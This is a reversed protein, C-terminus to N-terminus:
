ERLATLFQSMFLAVGTVQQQLPATVSWTETEERPFIFKGIVVANASRIRVWMTGTAQDYVAYAEDGLHPLDVFDLAAGGEYTKRDTSFGYATKGANDAGRAIDYSVQLMPLYSIGSSSVSVGDYACTMAFHDETTVSGATVQEGRARLHYPPNQAVPCTTDVAHWVVPDAQPKEDARAACGGASLLVTATALM